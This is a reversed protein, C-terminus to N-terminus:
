SVKLVPSIIEWNRTSFCSYCRNRFLVNVLFRFGNVAGEEEELSNNQSFTAPCQCFVPELILCKIKFPLGFFNM